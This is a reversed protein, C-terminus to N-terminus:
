KSDGKFIWRHGECASLCILESFAARRWQNWNGSTKQLQGMKIFLSRNGKGRCAGNEDFRFAFM